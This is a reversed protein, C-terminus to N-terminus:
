RFWASPAVIMDADRMVRLAGDVSCTGASFFTMGMFFLFCVGSYAVGAGAGM